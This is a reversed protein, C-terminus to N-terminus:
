PQRRDRGNICRVYPILAKLRSYAREGLTARYSDLPLNSTVLVPKKNAWRQHMLIGLQDRVWETTREAGLDDFVLLGCNLVRDWFADRQEVPRDFNSRITDFFAPVFTFYVSDVLRRETVHRVVAAALHSKGTGTPGVFHFGRADTTAFNEAYARLEDRLEDDADFNDFSADLMVEPLGFYRLRKRLLHERHRACWVYKIDRLEPDWIPFKGKEARMDYDVDCAGGSTPCRECQELREQAWDLAPEIGAIESITIDTPLLRRALRWSRERVGARVGREEWWQKRKTVEAQLASLWGSAAEAATAFEDATM